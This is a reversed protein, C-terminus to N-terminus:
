YSAQLRICIYSILEKSVENNAICLFFKNNKKALSILVSNVTYSKAWFVGELKCQKISKHKRLSVCGRAM